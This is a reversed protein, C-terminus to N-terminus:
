MSMIDAFDKMNVPHWLNGVHGGYPYLYLRDGVTAKLYEVDAITLLFDDQNTMVFVNKNNKITEELSYLSSSKLVAASDAHDSISPILFLEFYNGFSFRKAENMRKSKRSSNAKEKLIKRDKVQQSVYIIDRLGERFGNGILWKTESQTLQLSHLADGILKLDFGKEQMKMGVDIATGLIVQKREFPMQAGERYYQDLINLGNQLNLPPNIIVVKKFNFIKQELDIQALHSATLGGYSYGVLSFESTKLKQQTKLSFLVKQLFQYYEPADRLPYGPLSSESVDLSYHWSIPSPLTVVNYGLKYLQSGLFLAAGSLATGGTGSIVFALPAASNAQQFIALPVENRNELLPVNRRDKRIEIKIIKYPVQATTAVSTLTAVDADKLPFDYENTSYIKANALSSTIISILIVFTFNIMFHCSQM